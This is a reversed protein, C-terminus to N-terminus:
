QELSDWELDIDLPLYTCDSEYGATFTAAADATPYGGTPTGFRITFFGNEYDLVGDGQAVVNNAADLRFGNIRGKGDDRVTLPAGGVASIVMSFSGPAVSQFALTGAFSRITGNAPTATGAKPGAPPAYVAVVEGARATGTWRCRLLNRADRALNPTAGTFGPMQLQNNTRGLQALAGVQPAGFGAFVPIPQVAVLGGNGDAGLLRGATRGFPARVGGGLPPSVGAFNLPGPYPALEFKYSALRPTVAGQGGDSAENLETPRMVRAFVLSGAPIDDWVIVGSAEQRDFGSIGVGLRLRGNRVTGLIGM